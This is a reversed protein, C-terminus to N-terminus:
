AIGCEKCLIGPTPTGGRISKRISFTLYSLADRNCPSTQAAAFAQHWVGGCVFAKVVKGPLTHECAVRMGADAGGVKTRAGSSHCFPQSRKPAVYDGNVAIRVTELGLHRMNGQIEVLGVKGRLNTGCRKAKYGGNFDDLM